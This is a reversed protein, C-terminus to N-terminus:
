INKTNKKRFICIYISIWLMRWVEYYYLVFHLKKNSWPGHVHVWQASHHIGGQKHFLVILRISFVLVCQWHLKGVSPKTSAKILKLFNSLNMELFIIIFFFMWSLIIKMLASIIWAKLLGIHHCFTHCACNTLKHHHQRWLTYSINCLFPWTGLYALEYLRIPHTGDRIWNICCPSWPINEPWKWVSSIPVSQM